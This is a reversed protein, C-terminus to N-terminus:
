MQGWKIEHPELKMLKVWEELSNPDRQIVVSGELM